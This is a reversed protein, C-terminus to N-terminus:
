VGTGINVADDERQVRRKDRRQARTRRATVCTLCRCVESLMTKTSYGCTILEDVIWNEKLLDGDVNTLSTGKLRWVKCGGHSCSIVQPVSVGNRGGVRVTKWCGLAVRSGGDCGFRVEYRHRHQMLKGPGFLYTLEDGDAQKWCKLLSGVEQQSLLPFDYESFHEVFMPLSDRMVSYSVDRRCVLQLGHWTGLEDIDDVVRFPLNEDLTLAEYFAALELYREQEWVNM